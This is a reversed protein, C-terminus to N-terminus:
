HKDSKSFSSYPHPSKDTPIAQVAADAWHDLHTHTVIIANINLLSNIDYPLDVMPMQIHTNATGDFGPYSEKEGLMPDILFRKDAYDIIQTANRIQTIKM